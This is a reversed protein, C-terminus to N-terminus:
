NRTITRRFCPRYPLITMSLCNRLCEKPEKGQLAKTWKDGYFHQNEVHDVHLSGKEYINIVTSGQKNGDTQHLKELLRNLQAILDDGNSYM